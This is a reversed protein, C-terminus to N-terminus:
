PSPAQWLESDPHFVRWGKRFSPIAVLAPLRKGSLPGQTAEGRAMNWTSGTQQDLIAKGQQEFTLTQGDLRREYLYGAGTQTDFSVVVPTEAVTDNVLPQKSLQDFPWAKARGKHHLGLVFRAPNAYFDRTFEKGTRSMMLVTTEPYEKRWSEWDTLAAPLTKLRTGSLKGEMARGLLHSWLTQTEEDVM